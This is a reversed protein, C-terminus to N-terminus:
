VSRTFLDTYTHNVAGKKIAHIVEEAMCEFYYDENPNTKARIYVVDTYPNKLEKNKYYRM